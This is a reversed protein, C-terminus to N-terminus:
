QKKTLKIGMPGSITKDDLVTFVLKGQGGPMEMKIDKGDMEYKTEVQMGMTNTTLKGGKEFKYSSIGMQDEYTGSLGSNCACLILSAFLVSIKKM